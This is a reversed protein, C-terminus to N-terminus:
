RVAPEAPPNLLVEILHREAQLGPVTLRHVRARVGRRELVELEATPVAGKMALLRGDRAGLPRALGFLDGLAGVARSVVVPFGEAPRFDEARACVVEVNALSLEIAAQALFRTKKANADLLVCQLEPMAIALVLGPLGAGSGVDLLRPARVYPVVALSDLVHHSLMRAPDRIATLNYVANWKALLALYDLLQRRREAGLTLGLGLAGAELEAELVSSRASAKM